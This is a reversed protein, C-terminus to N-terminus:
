FKFLWQHITAIRTSQRTISFFVSNADQRSLCTIDPCYKIYIIPTFLQIAGKCGRYLRSVKIIPEQKKDLCYKIM